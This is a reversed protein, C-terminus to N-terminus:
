FVVENDAHLWEWTVSIVWCNVEIGNSVCYCDIVVGAAVGELLLLLVGPGPPVECVSQVRPMTDKGVDQM